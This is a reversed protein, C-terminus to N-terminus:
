PNGFQDTGSGPPGTTPKQGYAGGPGYLHGYLQALTNIGGGFAGTWANASGVTGAAQANGAGTYLQELIQSLNMLNGSTGLGTTTGSSVAQNTAGQGTGTIGMLRNYLNTNGTNFTNFNTNYTGLARQFANNYETSAAGTTFQALDKLTGGSLDLGKAAASNEIGKQGQQLMFQYGPDNPLDAPTPAHFPAFGQTLQGGPALLGALENTGQGGLNLYPQLQAINKQFWDSLTQNAQTTNGQAM